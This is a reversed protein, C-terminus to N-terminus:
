KGWANKYLTNILANNEDIHEVQKLAFESTETYFGSQGLGLRADAFRFGLGYLITPLISYHHILDRNKKLNDNMMFKNYIYRQGTANLKDIVPNIMALHDGIVVIDTNPYNARVYNVFSSVQISTCEVINQFDANPFRVKCDDNVFGEPHHTDVTLITLNYPEKASELERVKQRANAFLRDDYLGWGNYKKEELREWVERGYFQDYGHKKLFKEKGSFKGSAGGMFVNKYGYRKLVDGLCTFGSMFEAAREGQVNGDNGQQLIFKIVDQSPRLPVGCQTSVLAGITWGVGFVQEYKKFELGINSDLESLINKGFIEQNRYGNELSEVYILVLNRKKAPPAIKQVVVEIYESTNQKQEDANVRIRDVEVSGGINFEVAHDSKNIAPKFKIVLLLIMIFVLMLTVVWGVRFRKVFPKKAMYVALFTTLLLVVCTEFVLRTDSSFIGDGGILLVSLVQEIEVRGFRLWIWALSVILNFFIINFVLM